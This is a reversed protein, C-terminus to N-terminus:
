AYIGGSPTSGSASGPLFTSAKGFTNIVGNTEAIYRSGTASGVIVPSSLAVTGGSSAAIFHTFAPTGTLTFTRGAGTLYGAGMNIHRRAGGVIAYNEELVVHCPNDAFIHDANTGVAGFEMKGIRLTAGHGVSLAHVLDTAIAIRVGSLRLQVGSRLVLGSSLVVSSPTTDNGRIFLTGGGVLPRIIAGAYSGNALQITVDYGACDLRAAEDAAKQVTAFATGATLGDNGDSGSAAVHYTINGALQPRVGTVGAPFAVRGTAQDVVMADFFAAGDPSVKFRFADSGALGMEARGSWNTQFLISATDAAGAKNIKLQHGQGEHTFLSAPAAVALRNVADATTNIGVQPPISAFAKLPVWHSGDHVLMRDEEICYALWGAKPAHFTWAAEQWAAVMGAKGSWEGTADVPVIYRDGPAPDGPPLTNTRSVVALQLLTDIASIAENHTVHKQAQSPIIFPLHLNHTEQMVVPESQHKGATYIPKLVRPFRVVRQALGM